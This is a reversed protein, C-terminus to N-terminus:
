RVPHNSEPRKEEKSGPISEILLALVEQSDRADIVRKVLAQDQLLEAIQALLSLHSEHDIAGLGLALFVPDNVSGFNVGQTLTGLALCLRKVGADPRAHLLVVGPAIVCYTGIEKIVTKMEETYSPYVDGAKVMLNGIVDVLEEWGQVMIGTKIRDATLIRKLM